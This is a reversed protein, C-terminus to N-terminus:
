RRSWKVWPLVLGQTRVFLTLIAVLMASSVLVLRAIPPLGRLLWHLGFAPPIVVLACGFIGATMRVYRWLSLEVARLGYYALVAFAIPYAIAWALSVSVAGLQHLEIAFLYFALPLVIAAVITYLATLGPRGIGDLLPLFVPSLGRLVAAVCFIRVMAEGGPGKPFLALVDSGEVVILAVFPVIMFLNSRTLGIFADRLEPISGRLRAFAPLGVAMTIESMFRVPYLVLEFAFRYIGLAKEPFWWGVILYDANTYWHYLLQSLSTKLGFRVEHLTERVRLTFHPVWPHCVLVGVGTTLSRLVPGLVFCWIPEGAAAFGIKAAFELANAIVRIISIEKFRFERRMLSQPILYANKWVLQSGYAILLWQVVTHGVTRAYWGSTVVILGFVVSSVALNLWFITSLTAQDARKQRQIIASSLGLDSAADLLPFFLSALTAIGLQEPSVFFYLLIGLTAADGLGVIASAKGIWGTSTAVHKRVGAAEAAAAEAADVAAARAQDEASEATM